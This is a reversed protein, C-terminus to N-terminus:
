SCSRLEAEADSTGTGKHPFPSALHCRSRGYARRAAIRCLRAQERIIRNQGFDDASQDRRELWLANVQESRHRATVGTGVAVIVEHDHYRCRVERWM